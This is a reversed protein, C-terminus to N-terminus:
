KVLIDNGLKDLSITVVPLLTFGVGIASPNTGSVPQNNALLHSGNTSLFSAYSVSNSTGGRGYYANALMANTAVSPIPVCERQVGSLYGAMVKGPEFRM